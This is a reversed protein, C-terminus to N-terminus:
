EGMKDRSEGKRLYWDSTFTASIAGKPATSFNWRYENQGDEKFYSVGMFSKSKGVV